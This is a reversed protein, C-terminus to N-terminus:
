HKVRTYKNIVEQVFNDRKLRSYAEDIARKLTDDMNKNVVLYLNYKPEIDGIKEISACKAEPADQKYKNFNFRLRTDMEIFGDVRELEVLKFGQAYSKVPQLELVKDQALKELGPYRFDKLVALRHDRLNNEHHHGHGTSPSCHIISHEVTLLPESLQSGNPISNWAPSDYAIWNEQEVDQKQLLKEIRPSPSVLVELDLKLEEALKVVIDTIIGQEPTTPDTIQFPAAIDEIVYYHLDHASVGLSLGGLFICSTMIFAQKPLAM